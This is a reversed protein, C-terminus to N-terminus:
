LTIEYCFQRVKTSVNRMALKKSRAILNSSVVKEKALLHNDSICRKPQNATHKESPAATGPPHHNDTM